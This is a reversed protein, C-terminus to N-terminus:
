IKPRRTDDVAELLDLRLHEDRGVAVLVVALDEVLAGRDGLKLFRQWREFFRNEEWRKEALGRRGRQFVRDGPRLEHAILGVLDRELLYREIVREPDDVGGARGAQRLRDNVAM